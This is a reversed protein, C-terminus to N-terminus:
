DKRERVEEHDNGHFLELRQAIDVRVRKDAWSLAEALDEFEDGSAYENFGHAGSWRGDEEFLVLSLHRVVRFSFTGDGVCQDDENEECTVYYADDVRFEPRDSHLYHAVLAPGEQYGENVWTGEYGTPYCMVANRVWGDAPQEEPGLLVVPSYAEIVM